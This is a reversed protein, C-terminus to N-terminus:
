VLKEYFNARMFYYQQQLIEVEEILTFFVNKADTANKPM